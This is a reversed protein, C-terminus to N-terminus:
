LKGLKQRFKIIDSTQRASGLCTNVIQVADKQEHAGDPMLDGRVWDRLLKFWGVGLPLLTNESSVAALMGMVAEVREPIGTDVALYSKLADMTPGPVEIRVFRRRMGDSMLFVIDDLSSDNVTAVVRFRSANRIQDVGAIGAPEVAPVSNSLLPYLEGICRDLDARNMEDLVIAENRLTWRQRGAEGSNQDLFVGPQFKLRGSNKADPLLGGITHFSTWAANAVVTTPLEEALLTSPIKSLARNWAGAVFQAVTTKGTGPPGALVVHHGCKLYSLAQSAVSILSDPLQLLNSETQHAGPQDFWVGITTGLHRLARSWPLAHKPHVDVLYKDMQQSTYKEIYTNVQWRLGLPFLLALAAIAKSVSGVANTQEIVLSSFDQCSKSYEQLALPNSSGKASGGPILLKVMRTWEQSLQESLLQNEELFTRIEPFWDKKLESIVADRIETLQIPAVIKEMVSVTFLEDKTGIFNTNSSWKDKNEYSEDKIEEDVSEDTSASEDSMDQNENSSYEDTNNTSGINAYRGIKRGAVFSLTGSSGVSSVRIELQYDGLITNLVQPMGENLKM